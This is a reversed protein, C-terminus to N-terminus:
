VKLRWVTQTLGDHYNRVPMRGLECKCWLGMFPERYVEVTEIEDLIEACRMEYIGPSRPCETTWDKTTATM